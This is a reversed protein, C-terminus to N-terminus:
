ASNKSFLLQTIEFQFYEDPWRIIKVVRKVYEM